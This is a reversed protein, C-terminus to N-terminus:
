RAVMARSRPDANGGIPGEATSRGRPVESPTPGASRRRIASVDAYIESVISWDSPSSRTPRRVLAFVVPISSALLLLGAGLELLLM